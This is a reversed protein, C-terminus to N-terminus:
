TEEQKRITKLWWALSLSRDVRKNKEKKVTHPTSDWCIVCKSKKGLTISELWIQYIQVSFWSSCSRVRFKIESLPLKWDESYFPHRRETARPMVKSLFLAFTGASPLTAIQESNFATHFVTKMSNVCSKSNCEKTCSCHGRLIYKTIKNGLTLAM